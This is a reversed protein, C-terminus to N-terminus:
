WKSPNFLDDPMETEFDLHFYTTLDRPEAKGETKNKEVVNKWRVVTPYWHGKPSRRFEDFERVQDTQDIHRFPDHPDDVKVTGFFEPQGLKEHKVAAYGRNPDLWHRAERCMVYVYDPLPDAKKLELVVTGEPEGNGGPRVSMEFATGARYPPYAFHEVLFNGTDWLSVLEWRGGHRIAKWASSGHGSARPPTVRIGSAPDTSDGRAAEGSLREPLVPQSNAHDAEFRYVRAGDCILVPQTDFQELRNRWWQNDRTDEILQKDTQTLPEVRDTAVCRDLRWKEGKRRIVQDPVGRDFCIISTYDDFGYFGAHLKKLVAKLDGSPVRDVVELEPSVGLAYIDLPGTAPYDIDFHADDIGLWVPLKKVPDVRVVMSMERRGRKLTFEFDRWPRGDVDVVRSAQEVVEFGSFHAGVPVQRQAILHGITELSSASDSGYIPVRSLCNTKLDFAHRIGARLDEHTTGEPSRWAIIEQSPSFWSEHVRGEPDVSKLHVWPMKEIAAAVEAWADKPRQALWAIALLVVVATGALSWGGVRAWWRRRSRRTVLTAERPVLSQVDIEPAPDGLIADVAIRWRAPLEDQPRQPDHSSEGSV